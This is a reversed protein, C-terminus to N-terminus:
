ERKRSLDGHETCASENRKPCGTRARLVFRKLLCPEVLRTRRNSASVCRPFRACVRATELCARFAWKQSRGPVFRVPVRVRKHFKGHAGDSYWNSGPMKAFPWMDPLGSMVETFLGEALQMTPSKGASLDGTPTCWHRPETRMSPDGPYPFVVFDPRLVNALLTLAIDMIFNEPKASTRARANRLSAIDRWM